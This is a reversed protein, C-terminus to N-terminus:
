KLTSRMSSSTSDFEAFDDGAEDSACITSATFLSSDKNVIRLLEVKLQDARCPLPKMIYDNAGADYFQTEM